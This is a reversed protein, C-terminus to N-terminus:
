LGPLDDFVIQDPKAATHVSGSSLNKEMMNKLQVSNLFNRELLEIVEAAGMLLLCTIFGALWFYLMVPFASGSGGLADMMDAVDLGILAGGILFVVGAGFSTYQFIKAIQNKYERM